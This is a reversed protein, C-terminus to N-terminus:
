PGAMETALEVYRCLANALRVQEVTHCDVALLRPSGVLVVLARARSVAVNLRHHSYLFEMGRPIQEVSSTTLSVLVVDGQQGQFRDVTGVRSGAPLTDRLLAVQANYPAVVVIDEATLVRTQGSRETVTRGLLSRVCRDVAVAEDLSRVRDDAHEVPLWRLGSGSLPGHGGIAQRECGEVAELKGDYMVESVYRCVDPHLRHTRDLFVGLDPPLTAAEGLVHGLASAGAGPPHAGRSPQALQQPDGVLVLNRAATGVAMANALSQQGAEDVLLVDFRGDFDPRAFLWSTGAVVPVGADLDAVVQENSKRVRVCPDDVGDGDAKQSIEVVVDRARAEELIARILNGIVAHSHGTVAVTSGHRSVLEVVMRAAATTKGSGPPGQVALLGGDLEGVVRVAADAAPEGVDVLAGAVPRGSLRPSRRLLLDRAARYPGDGDLGTAIVSTALRGLAAKQQPSLVPGGPILCRPHVRPKARKLELVGEAPDFRVLEGPGKPTIREEEPWQEVVRREAEPDAVDGSSSLKCEQAPDFRYRYVTSRAMQGAEGEFELGAVAETDDYLDREDCRLVRDYFRWWEPKEERRHWGLLDALLERGGAMPDSPPGSPGSPSSPSSPSSPGAARLDGALGSVEDLEHAVSEPVETRGRVPRSPAEGFREEFEQRREELWHRLGRTSECDVENYEALRDLIGQDGTKLYKEYEVVSSGGDTIAETRAAPRYLHEIKKLSYSPTGVRVSQRVVRLLDVLVNGRLLDDVEAERTGHRGMLRGLATPEYAAYHYVHMDPDAARRAVIFDILAEFAAKEGARDHGWFPQYRATGDPEVSSVGLLYELGDRDFWPDGEIDFFVDGPSPAPLAGLGIGPETVDLLEHRPALAVDADAAAVQLRAQDRLRLLFQRSIGKVSATAEDPLVSLATMTPVSATQLKRAQDAGLGAVLTLHDERVRREDCVDAWRCVACHPVPMPEATIGADLAAVFRQRASRHYAAFDSRRLSEERGDGLVVSMTSVPSGQVQELQDAYESLQLVASPTVRRALKTDIPRYSFPGLASPTEERRLFDAHGRWLQGDVESTFTAQYVVDAGDHLAEHTLRTREALSPEAPIRTIALGQEELRALWAREHEDGKRRLLDVAPDDRVPATLAGDAVALSLETLHPCHLYDVLDTPSLM